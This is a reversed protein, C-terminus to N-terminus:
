ILRGSREHEHGELRDVPDIAVVRGCRREAAKGLVLQGDPDWDSLDSGQPGEKKGGVHEDVMGEGDCEAPLNM